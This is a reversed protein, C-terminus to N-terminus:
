AFFIKREDELGKNIELLVTSIAMNSEETEFEFEEWFPDKNKEKQRLIRIKYKM